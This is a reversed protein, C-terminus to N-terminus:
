KAGKVFGRLLDEHDKFEIVFCKPPSKDSFHTMGYQYFRQAYSLDGQDDTNVQFQCIIRPNDGLCARMDILKVSKFYYEPNEVLLSGVLGIFSCLTDREQKNYHCKSAMEKERAKKEQRKQEEQQIASMTSHLRNQTRRKLIAKQMDAHPHPMFHFTIGVVKNGKGKKTKVYFITEYPKSRDPNEPNYGEGLPIGLERCAPRLVREEIVGIQMSKPIGMFEKFGEFNNQYTLVECMCNKKVDEFRVLLRYLAKAYKSRLSMFTKLQLSTFNANLDNLLHIFYHANIGVVVYRLKPTKDSVITFHKFLFYNTEGTLEEGNEVFRRIEWFNALRVNKWLTRVVRLLDNNNIKVDGIMEKVEHLEFRIITDGRDKLRNFLSFLLNSEWAGLKGLNVKYIDNHLIVRGPNAIPLDKAPMAVKPAPQSTKEETKDQALDRDPIAPTEKDQLKTQPNAQEQEHKPTNQEQTSQTNTPTNQVSEKPNEQNEQSSQLNHAPALNIIRDLCDAQKKKLAEKLEADTTIEIVKQIAKIKQELQEISSM